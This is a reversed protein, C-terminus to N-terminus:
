LQKAVPCGESHRHTIPKGERLSCKKCFFVTRDILKENKEPENKYSEFKNGFLTEPRLFKAYDTNQWNKVKKEIVAKFDELTFGEKLRAKILEITKRTTAKYSAGAKENLFDIIDQIVPSYIEKKIQNSKIQNINVSGTVDTVSGTVDEDKKHLLRHKIVRKHVPSLQYTNWHKIYFIGNKDDIKDTEIFKKIAKKLTEIPIILLGALQELPYPTTENARIYGNDKGALAMFDVWIGREELSLEIRTSGFIWKDIWLPIWLYDSNRKNM